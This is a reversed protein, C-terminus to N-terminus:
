TIITNNISKVVERVKVKLEELSGNNDIIADYLDDSIGDQNTESEHDISSILNRKIKIKFFNDEALFKFENIFRVDAIIFASIGASESRGISDKMNDIWISTRYSRGVETGLDILLQRVTLPEGNKFANPITKSRNHSSGYLYNKPIEPFMISAIKKIPDAFAAIKVNTDNCIEKSIMKAVTNKGSNLKGTISIKYM